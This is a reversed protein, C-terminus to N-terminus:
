TKTTRRLDITNKPNNAKLAIVGGTIEFIIELALFFNSNGGM